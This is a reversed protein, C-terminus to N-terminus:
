DELMFKDWLDGFSRGDVDKESINVGDSGRRPRPKCAGIRSKQEATFGLIRSMLDVVEDGNGGM